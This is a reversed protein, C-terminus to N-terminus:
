FCCLSTPQEFITSNSKLFDNQRKNVPEFLAELEDVRDDDEPLWLEVEAEAAVNFLAPDSSFIEVPLVILSKLNLDFSLNVCEHM